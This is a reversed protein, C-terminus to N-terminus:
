ELALAWKRGAHRISVSRETHHEVAARVARAVKLGPLGRGTPDSHALRVAGDRLLTKVAARAWQRMDTRWSPAKVHAAAARAISAATTATYLEGEYLAGLPVEAVGGVPLAHILAVRRTKWEHINYHPAEHWQEETVRGVAYAYHEGAVVPVADWSPAAPLRSRQEAANHAVDQLDLREANITTPPM